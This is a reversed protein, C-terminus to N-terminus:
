PLPLVKGESQAPAPVRLIRALTPAIDVAEVKADVQGPKVWRPGWFLLPVHTDYRHPSGHTAAAAGLMWHPRLAYQVDGSLARHWSRRMAEFLPAGARSGSELEGRTYAAAIAPHAVLAARAADAVEGAALRHPALLKRDLVLASASSFAVLGPVGFQLELADNVGAVLESTRVRGAELGQALRAEPAPMFGHDSTLVALYNARGVSADLARFFEQLLRDLQLLHDLSRSSEASWAHNVLDHGSLSVALLDPVQDRGLHEGAIAARAFDFTLVDVPPTAPAPPVQNFADVWAPHRPMYWTSSAFRGTDAMAMYATGSRGATLIAGRDKGSIGIVRSRPDLRRLVDGVTEAQLRRPSTGDLPQTAHDIYTASPDAACYVTAGTELERWSNGIIGSRHPYAGTLLAAHGAATVTYAQAHHAETFWAGEQYFRALGDAALQDRHAALQRQPLGDVVLLVVLRPPPPPAVAACALLALAAVCATFCRLWRRAQM